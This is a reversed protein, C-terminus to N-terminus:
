SCTAASASRPRWTRIRGTALRRPAGFRHGRAACRWTSATRACAATRSGPWRRTAARTSPWRSARSRSRGRAGSRACAGSRRREHRRPPRRAAGRSRHRRGPLGRRADRTAGPPSAPRRHDARGASPHAPCSGSRPAGFGSAGPARAAGPPAPAAANGLAEQFSWTRWRVGGTRSVIVATGDVFTHPSSLTRRPGRPGRPPPALLLLASPSPSACAASVGRIGPQARRTLQEARSAVARRASLLPPGPADTPSPTRTAAAAARGPADPPEGDWDPRDRLVETVATADRPERRDSARRRPRPAAAEWDLDEAPNPPEPRHAARVRAGAVVLAAAARLAVIFGWQIGVEVSPADDGPRDFVRWILLLAAWGGALSIVLGDGGPLHFGKGEMRAWILFLVGAAVLLIAAEVFTFVGFASLSETVFEGEGGPYVSKQYWPLAMSLVLVGAAIAAMRQEPPVERVRKQLSPVVDLKDPSRSTRWRRRRLSPGPELRDISYDLVARLAILLERLAQQLQRQLDPPLSSRALEM